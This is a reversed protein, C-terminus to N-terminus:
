SKDDNDEAIRLLEEAIPAANLDSDAIDKLADRNERLKDVTDSM